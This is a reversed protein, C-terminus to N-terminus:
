HSYVASAIFSIWRAKMSENVALTAYDWKAKVAVKITIIIHFTFYNYKNYSKVFLGIAKLGLM